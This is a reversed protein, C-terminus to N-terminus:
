GWPPLKWGGSLVLILFSTQADDAYRLRPKEISVRQFGNLENLLCRVEIRLMLLDRYAGAGAAAAEAFSKSITLASVRANERGDPCGSRQPYSLRLNWM